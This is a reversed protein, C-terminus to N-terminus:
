EVESDTFYLSSLLYNVVWLIAGKWSAVSILILFIFLSTITSFVDILLKKFKNM